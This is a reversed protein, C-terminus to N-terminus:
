LLLIEQKQEHLGAKSVHVSEKERCTGEPSRLLDDSLM